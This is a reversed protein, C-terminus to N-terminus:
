KTKPGRDDLLYSFFLLHALKQMIPSCNGLEVKHKAALM